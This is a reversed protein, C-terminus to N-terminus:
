LNKRVYIGLYGKSYNFLPLMLSLNCVAHWVNLLGQSFRFSTDHLTAKKHKRNHVAAINLNWVENNDEFDIELTNTILSQLIILIRKTNVSFVRLFGNSYLKTINLLSVSEYLGRQM